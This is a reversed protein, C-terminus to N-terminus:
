LTFNDVVSFVSPIDWFRTTEIPETSHKYPRNLFDRESGVGLGEGFEPLPALM